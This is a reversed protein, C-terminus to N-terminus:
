AGTSLIVGLYALYIAILLGGGLRSLGGHRCALAVGFATMALLWWVSLMAAHSPSQQGFIIAPVCIGALINISNSNLSESVVASGRGSTALRIAAIMNPISTLVALILVGVVIHPLRWRESLAVASAVLGYSAVVVSVLAPIAALADTECAKPPTRDERAAREAQAAAISVATKADRSLFSLYRKSGVGMALAAQFVGLVVVLLVLGLWGSIARLVVAAGISTVALAAIGDLLMGMRGIVVRGSIVASLGFLGALNFINSGFIVGMGLEHHGFALASALSTIEPADAGIAAVLGLLNPSFNLRAGIRDLCRSFVISSIISLMLCLVFMTSAAIM